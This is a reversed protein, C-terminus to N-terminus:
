AAALFRDVPHDVGAVAPPTAAVPPRFAWHSGYTAGAAIWRALTTREAAPLSRGTEPPPMVVDPDTAEVRKVLESDAPVGPVIARAGSDLAATAGAATDLRLGAQRSHEDFGHCSFCNAALIPLVDRAFAPGAQDAPEAVGAVRTGLVGCLGALAMVVCTIRQRSAM